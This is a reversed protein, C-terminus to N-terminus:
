MHNVQLTYMINLVNSGHLKTETWESITELGWYVVSRWSWDCCGDHSWQPLRLRYGGHLRGKLWLLKRWLWSTNRSGEIRDLLLWQSRCVSVRGQGAHRHLPRWPCGSPIDNLHKFFSCTSLHVKTLLNILQRILIHVAPVNQGVKLKQRSM